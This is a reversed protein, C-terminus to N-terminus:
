LPIDYEEYYRKFRDFGESPIQDNERWWDYFEELDYLWIIASYRIGETVPTVGHYMRSDFIVADGLNLDVNKSFSEYRIPRDGDPQIKFDGGNYDSKDNLAVTISVKRRPRSNVIFFDEPDSIKRGRTDIHMTYNIDDTHYDFKAKLRSDYKLISISENTYFKNNFLENSKKIIKAPISGLEHFNLSIMETIRFTDYSLKDGKSNISSARRWETNVNSMLDDIEEKSLFNRIIFSKM